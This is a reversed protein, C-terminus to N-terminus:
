NRGQMREKVQVPHTHHLTTVQIYVKHIVARADRLEDLRAVPEDKEVIRCVQVGLREALEDLRELLPDLHHDERRDPVLYVPIHEAFLSQRAAPFVLNLANGIHSAVLDGGFWDRPLTSWDFRPSRPRIRRTTSADHADDLPM